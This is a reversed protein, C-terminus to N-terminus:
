AAGRTKKSVPATRRLPIPATAIEEWLRRLTLERRVSIGTHRIGAPSVLASNRRSYTWPTRDIPGRKGITLTTHRLMDCRACRQTQDIAVANNPNRVSRGNANVGHWDYPVWEHHEAICPALDDPISQVHTLVEEDTPLKDEM